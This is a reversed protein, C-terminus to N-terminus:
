INRFIHMFNAKTINIGSQGIGSISIAPFVGASQASYVGHGFWINSSATTNVGIDQAVQIATQGTLGGFISLTVGLNTTSLGVSASNTSLGYAIYYEGPTMNVNIPLSFVRPGTISSFSASNSAWTWTTQTSATSVSSLTSGNRTYIGFWQSLVLAATNTTASTALSISVPIDVRTASINFPAQMYKISHTGQAPSTMISVYNADPHFYRSQTAPASVSATISTTSGASSSGFSVGNSNVYVVSGGSVSATMVGNNSLGFTINNSNSFNVTGTNQSNAGGSIAAGGGAASATITSGNLGFSVGNSNSFVVSALGASNAGASFTVNGAAASPADIVVSGNSFGVSVAGKGQFSLTRADFTSSSSAGETNSVAYMGITQVSQTPVTYSATISANSFGFSIGNANSFGLSSQNSSTTGASININSLTVANSQMATTLWAPHNLSLNLGATNHTMSGSILNGAFGSTTGAASSANLSIGASNVTWALPGATLATNLGVADTSGRATTLWAPHQFWITNPGGGATSQSLTISQSGALVWDIGTSIGTNGATAGTNSVGFGKIASQNTQAFSASGTVTAGNLGFTVNNSNSFVFASLNSSTTGASLNINSITAANSQMATTLYNTQVTATMVSGNLGFSIGNSNSFTIASLNNSTTGGSVNIASILGATSPVTYSASIGNAGSSGFSIGNANRWSVTGSTYTTDSVQIGSIGTQAGGAAAVSGTITGNNYGFSVGNGNAFTFASANGSTTGASLNINSITAANSLMATTLYAGQSQYNTAVSISVTNNSQQITVGNGGALAYGGNLIQSSNTTAVNGSLTFALTQSSLAATTLYAGQSQYNTAVTATMTGANLGFSIGNSDAFTIASLLNSTTGGSVRINSITAANSQMATTLWAPHNLSLNLGSSNLTISGSILNGGFGSSTGALNHVIGVTASSAGTSLTMTINNGTSFALRAVPNITTASDQVSFSTLTPVTYSAVMSGNSTYFSAGNLNGFTVTSFAFSGNSGSIAVPQTSQQTIGNHSATMTGNNSLGFTIGNSNAFEITASNQTYTGSGKIAAGAGAGVSATVSTTAGATSTGFTVGNSNVFFLSGAPATSASATMVGNSLGFFVGNSNSFTITGSSMSSASASIAVGGAGGAAAASLQLSFGASNHTMTASVNTGSFGTATGVYGRADLSLGSSNVTWTVNSQATNLGIADNSARATTLYAGASQLATTINSALGFTISSGNTSASLSSGVNLSIQGTSGNLSNVVQNSQAATTLYNGTSQFQTSNYSATVTNGNVGFSIGNSNSFVATGSTMQTTGASLGSIGTQAGGAAAVSATMVGNQSLGFTVGNSNSFQVTGSNQTYTGSGQIAAGGAGTAPIPYNAIYKM